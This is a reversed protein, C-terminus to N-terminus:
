SVDEERKEGERSAGGDGELYRDSRERRWRGNKRAPSTRM